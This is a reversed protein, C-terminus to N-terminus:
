DYGEWSAAEVLGEWGTAEWDRLSVHHEEDDAAFLESTDRGDFYRRVGEIADAARQASINLAIEAEAEQAETSGCRAQENDFWRDNLQDRLVADDDYQYGTSVYGRCLLKDFDEIVQLAHRAQAKDDDNAVPSDAVAQLWGTALRNVRRAANVRGNVDLMTKYDSM